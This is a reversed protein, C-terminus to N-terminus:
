VFTLVSKNTAPLNTTSNFLGEHIHEAALYIIISLFFGVFGYFCLRRASLGRDTLQSPRFLYNFPSEYWHPCLPAGEKRNAVARFMNVVGVFWSAVIGVFSAVVLIGLFLELLIMSGTAKEIRENITWVREIVAV